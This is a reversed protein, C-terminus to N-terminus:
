DQKGARASVNCVFLGNEDPAIGIEIEAKPLLIKYPSSGFRKVCKKLVRKKRRKHPYKLNKPTNVGLRDRIVMSVIQRGVVEMITEYPALSATDFLPKGLIEKFHEMDATPIDFNFSPMRDKPPRFTQIPVDRDTTILGDGKIFRAMDGYDEIPPIPMLFPKDWGGFTSEFPNDEDGM